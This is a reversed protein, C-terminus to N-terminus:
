ILNKMVKGNSHFKFQYDEHLLAIWAAADNKNWAEEWQEFVAM